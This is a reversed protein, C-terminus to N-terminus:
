ENYKEEMKEKLKEWLSDKDEWEKTLYLNAITDEPTFQVDRLLEGDPYELTVVYMLNDVWNDDERIALLQIKEETM